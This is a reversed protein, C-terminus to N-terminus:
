KDYKEQILKLLDENTATERNKELFDMIKEMKNLTRENYELVKVIKYQYNGETIDGFLKKYVLDIRDIVDKSLSFEISAKM